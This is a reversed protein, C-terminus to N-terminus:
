AIEATCQLSEHPNNIPWYAISLALIGLWAAALWGIIGDYSGILINWYSHPNVDTYVHTLRIALIWGAHIGITWGLHGTRKRILALLMGACFLAILSDINKLQLLEPFALIISHLITLITIPTVFLVQPKIFHLISYLLSSWLIAATANHKQRIMTFVAGRFFSEELIAIILGSLMGSSIILPLRMFSIGPTFYRVNLWILIAILFFLIITGVLLGFTITQLLHFPTVEYGITTLNKIGLTYLFPWLGIAAIIIGGRQILQHPPITSELPLLIM